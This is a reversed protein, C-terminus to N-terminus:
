CRRTREYCLLTTSVESILDIAELPTLNFEHGRIKVIVVESNIVSIDIDKKEQDLFSMDIKEPATM